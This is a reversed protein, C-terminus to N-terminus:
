VSQLWTRAAAIDAFIQTIFDGHKTSQVVYRQLSSNGFIDQPMVFAAHTVGMAVYAPNIEQVVWDLDARSIIGLARTDALISLKPYLPRQQAAIEQLNLMHRRFDASKIYGDWEHVICPISSDVYCRLNKVSYLLEPTDPM